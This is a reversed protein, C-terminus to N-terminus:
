LDAGEITIPERDASRKTNVSIQKLIEEVQSAKQKNSAPLENGWDSGMGTGGWRQDNKDYVMPAYNNWSSGGGGTWPTWNNGMGIDATPVVDMAQKVSNTYNAFTPTLKFLSDQYESFRVAESVSGTLVHKLQDTHQKVGAVYGEGAKKGADEMEEVGWDGGGGEWGMGGWFEEKFKDFGDKFGKWQGGLIRELVKELPSKVRKAIKPLEGVVHSWGGLIKNWQIDWVNKKGTLLDPLNTGLIAANAAINKFAIAAGIGVSMWFRKFERVAWVIYPPLVSIFFHMVVSRTKELALVAATAAMNWFTQWNKLVYVVMLLGNVVYDRITTALVEFSVIATGVRSDVLAWLVKFAHLLAGAVVDYLEKVLGLLTTFLLGLVERVPELWDWFAMAANKVTDWAKAWGGMIDVVLLVAGAVVAVVAAIAAGIPTFLAGIASLVASLGAFAVSAAAAVAPWAIALAGIAGAILGIWVFATQLGKPLSQWWSTMAQLAVSVAAIMEKLHLGEIVTKGVERRFANFDDMMTSFLGDITKSAELMGDKFQGGTSTASKFAGQLMEFSIKGAEMEKRLTAMDKGTTRSLEKLPNFGANMLQILEGGMLRGITKVQQFAYAMGQMKEKDGMAVDGLMRLTPVMEKATFGAQLLMKTFRSLDSMELPTEAAFKQLDGMLKIAKEQSGLMVKFSSEMKEADAALRVGSFVNNLMGLGGVAGTVSSLIQGAFGKLASKMAMSRTVNSELSSNLTKSDKEVTRVMQQYSSPDGVLRVVLRQIEATTM